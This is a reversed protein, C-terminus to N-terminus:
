VFLMASDRGADNLFTVVGGTAVPVDPRLGTGAPPALAKLGMECAMVTVGLAVCAGLLEEFTALGNAGFWRDREVPTRGDDAADLDHWGFREPGAPDFLARVARGTFFLTVRRNTAAAASAMVLAYHVRDFGGAFVVISLSEPGQM